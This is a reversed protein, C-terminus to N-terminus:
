DEKKTDNLMNLLFNSSIHLWRKLLDDFGLPTEKELDGKKFLDLFIEQLIEFVNKYDPAKGLARSVPNVFRNKDGGSMVFGEQMLSTYPSMANIIEDDNMGLEKLFDITQNIFQMGGEYVDKYYKTIDQSKLVDGYKKDLGIGEKAWQYAGAMRLARSMDPTAASYQPIIQSEFKELEGIARAEEDKLPTIQKQLERQFAQKTREAYPNYQLSGVANMLANQLLRLRQSQLQEVNQTIAQAHEGFKSKIASLFPSIDAPPKDMVKETFKYIWPIEAKKKGGM